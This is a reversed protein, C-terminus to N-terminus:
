ICLQPYNRELLFFELTYLKELNDLQALLAFTIMIACFQCTYSFFKISIDFRRSLTILCELELSNLSNIFTMKMIKKKFKNSCM